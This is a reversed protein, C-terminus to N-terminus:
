WSAQRLHRRRRSRDSTRTRPRTRTAPRRRPYPPIVHPTELLESRTGPPVTHLSSSVLPQAVGSRHTAKLYDKQRLIGRLGDGQPQEAGTTAKRTEGGNLRSHM